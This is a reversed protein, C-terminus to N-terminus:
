QVTSSDPALEMQFQETKIDLGNSEYVLLKVKGLFWRKAGREYEVEKNTAHLKDRLRLYDQLNNEQRLWFTVQNHKKSFQHKLELNPCGTSNLWNGAFLRLSLGSEKKYVEMLKAFSFVREGERVIAKLISSFHVFGVTKSISHMMLGAKMYGICHSVGNCPGWTSLYVGTEEHVKEGRAHVM